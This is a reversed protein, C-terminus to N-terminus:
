IPGHPPPAAAARRAASLPSQRSTGRTDVLLISRHLQLQTMEHQLHASFSLQSTDGLRPAGYEEPVLMLNKSAKQVDNDTLALNHVMVLYVYGDLHWTANEGAAAGITIPSGPSFLKVDDPIELRGIRAGNVYYRVVRTMRATGDVVEEDFVFQHLLPTDAAHSGVQYKINGMWKSNEGASLRSWFSLSEVSEGAGIQM